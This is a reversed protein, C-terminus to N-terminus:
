RERAAHGIAEPSLLRMCDARARRGLRTRLDVSEFVARMKAAADDISPDAWMGGKAYPGYDRDLEILQYDVVMANGVHTFDMNGSWGTAIVAKERVMAEAIGLGFGECRYM